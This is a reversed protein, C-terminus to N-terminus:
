LHTAGGLAGDELGFWNNLWLIEATLVQVASPNQFSDATFTGTAALQATTAGGVGGLDAIAAAYCTRDGTDTTEARALAVSAAALHTKSVGHKANSPEESWDRIASRIGPGHALCGGTWPNKRIAFFRNIAAFDADFERDEAPTLMADPLKGFKVIVSIAQTTTPRNAGDRLARRLDAVVLILPVAQYAGGTLLQAGIWQSKAAALDAAVARTTLRGDAPRAASRAGAAGAFGALLCGAAAAAAAAIRRRAPVPQKASRSLGTM